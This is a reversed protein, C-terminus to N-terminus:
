DLVIELLADALSVLEPDSGTEAVFQYEQAAEAPKELAELAMGIYLHMTPDGPNLYRAADLYMMSLSPDDELLSIVGLGQLAQLNRPNELLVDQWVLRAEVLRSENLILGAWAAKTDLLSFDLELANQYATAALKWRGQEYYANGLNQYIDTNFPNLNLALLFHDEALEASDNELLLVGLNNHIWPLYEDLTIAQQYSEIAEEGKGQIAQIDGLLGYVKASEPQLLLVFKLYDEALDPRESEVFRNPLSNNATELLSLGLTFFTVALVLISILGIWGGKKLLPKSIIIPRPPTPPSPSLWDNRHLVSVITETLATVTYASKKGYRIMESGFYDRDTLTRTEGQINEQEVKGNEIVGLFNGAQGKKIIQAGPPFIVIKVLSELYRRRSSPLEEFFRINKLDSVLKKDKM